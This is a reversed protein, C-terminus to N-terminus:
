DDWAEPELEIGAPATRRLFSRIQVSAAVLVLVVAIPVLLGPKTTHPTSVTRSVTRTTGPTALEVTRGTDKPQYPLKEEFTDPETTETSSGGGSRGSGSSITGGSRYTSRSGSPGSSRGNAPVKPNAKGAAPVSGSGAGSSGTGSGGTGTGGSGSGGTGSGGTGTGGGGTGTGGGGTGTGGGTGSPPADDRVTATGAGTAPSAIPASGPGGAGWRLTQVAYSYDGPGPVTDVYAGTGQAVDKIPAGNRLIRYGVVDPSRDSAWSTTVVRGVVGGNAQAPGPGPDALAVPAKLPDSNPKLISAPQNAVVSVVYTGNCPFDPKASFAQGALTATGGAVTCAAPYGAPLAVSYTVKAPNGAVPPAATGKLEPPGSFANPGAATIPASWKVQWLLGNAAGAPSAALAPAALAAAAAGVLALRKALPRRTPHSSPAVTM